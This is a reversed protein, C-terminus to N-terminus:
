ISNSKNEILFKDFDNYYDKSDYLQSALVLCIGGGSFNKLERWIMKPIYLGISPRNLHFVEENKGDNLHVDFSGSVAVFLQELNKHAHGGRESGSPIDYLYYVRKIAFPVDVNNYVPTLSGLRNSKISKLNIISAKEISCM